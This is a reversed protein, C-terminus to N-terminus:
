QGRRNFDEDIKKKWQNSISRTMRFENLVQGVTEYNLRTGQADACYNAARDAHIGCRAATAIADINAGFFIFEWGYKEKQRRVMQNIKTDTYECSANEMGDTTIVFIVKDARQAADAEKQLQGVKYITKGIADLLATSGGVYYDKGTIPRLEKIHIRDHLVEYGDDFLVTTVFVQDPGEQQKKLMANYGGITDRELGEMSGSKDLIFILETRHNKMANDERKKILKPYRKPSAELDGPLRCKNVWCTKTLLSCPKISKM